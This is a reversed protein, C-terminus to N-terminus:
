SSFFSSIVLRNRAFFSQVTKIYDHLSYGKLGKAKLHDQYALVKQEWRFRIKPNTSTLDKLRAEIIKDPNM